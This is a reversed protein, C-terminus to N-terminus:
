LATHNESLRYRIASSRGSREELEMLYHQIFCNALKHVLQHRDARGEVTVSHGRHLEPADPLSLLQLLAQRRQLDSDLM